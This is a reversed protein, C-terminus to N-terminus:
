DAASMLASQHLLWPKGEMRQPTSVPRQYIDLGQRASSCGAATGQHISVIQHLMQTLPKGEVRHPPSVLIHHPKPPTFPEKAEIVQTRAAELVSLM